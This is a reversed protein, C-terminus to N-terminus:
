RRAVTLLGYDGCRGLKLCGVPEDGFSEGGLLELGGAPAPAAPYLRNDGAALAAAALDFAQGVPLSGWAPAYAAVRAGTPLLRPYGAGCEKQGDAGLLLRQPLAPPSGALNGQGIATLYGYRGSRDGRELLVFAAGEGPLASQRDFALPQLPGDAVGFFRRWCYGLEPCYEDVGGVLVADVREEALWRRATLLASPFSMEFQSVTLSPGTVQLLISINAAAANHLSSSFHTPSSCVDGGQIFSQLFAFTTAMAGWGTAIVVGLRSRDTELRDADRLALSAGLLALRSFHDVRRLARRPVFDELADDAALLVPLPGGAGAPAPQPTPPAGALAQRLADVGCGFGGVVGLGQIALRSM